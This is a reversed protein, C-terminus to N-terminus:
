EADNRAAEQRLRRVWAETSERSVFEPYDLASYIGRCEQLAKAQKVRLLSEETARIIFESHRGRQVYKDLDRTLSEPFRVAKLCTKEAM